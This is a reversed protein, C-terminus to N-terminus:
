NNIARKNNYRNSLQYLLGHRLAANTTTMKEIELEAFIASMIAFGGALVLARDNRLGAIQLKTSDGQSLMVERLKELGTKTIGQKSYGNKELIDALARATGSSGIAEQWSNVSFNRAINQKRLEARAVSEAEDLAKLNIKNNPFYTASYTVCGLNISALKKTEFGRGIIFETSGGGIDIVLRNQSSTHNHAVGLYILEAEEEGSIIDIPFGLAAEAQKIFSKPNKAIRLTNTGVARVADPTFERLKEGFRKLCAIASEQVETNLQNNEGLALALRTTEKLSDLLYIQGNIARALQLRFSNSGLDVAALNM